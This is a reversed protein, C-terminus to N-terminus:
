KLLGELRPDVPGGVMRGTEYYRKAGNKSGRTRLMLRAMNYYAFYSRPNSMIAQDLSREAAKLDGRGIEM